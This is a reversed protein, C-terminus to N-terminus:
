NIQAAYFDKKLDDISSYLETIEDQLEFDAGSLDDIYLDYSDPEYYVSAALADDHPASGAGPAGSLNHFMKMMCWIGAFMAALYVYPRIKQWASLKREVPKEPYEPLNQLLESKFSEFYNDPIRFPSEKGAMERLRDEQKM